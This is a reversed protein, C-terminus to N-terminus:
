PLEGEEGYEELCLACREGMVCGRDEGREAADACGDCQYGRALDLPTLRDPAHCTPCPHVRPNRANAARLASRGGPESFGVGDILDDDLDDDYM